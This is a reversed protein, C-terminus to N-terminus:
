LFFFNVHAGSLVNQPTIMKYCLYGKFNSCLGYKNTLLKRSLLISKNCVNQLYTKTNGKIKKENHFGWKMIFANCFFSFFISIFILFLFFFGIQTKHISEVGHYMHLMKICLIRVSLFKKLFRLKCSNWVCAVNCFMKFYWCPFSLKINVYTLCIEM